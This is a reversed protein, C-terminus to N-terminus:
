QPPLLSLAGIGAQPEILIEYCKETDEAPQDLYTWWLHMEGNIREVIDDTMKTCPLDNLAPSPWDAVPWGARWVFYLLKESSTRPRSTVAKTPAFWATPNGPPDGPM